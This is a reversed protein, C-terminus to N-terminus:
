STGKQRSGLDEQFLFYEPKESGRGIRHSAVLHELLYWAETPNNIGCEACLTEIKKPTHTLAALLKRQLVLVAAAARKGAEVGPQHYANISVMWAYYGVAREYLALLAGVFYPTIAPLTLTLSWRGQEALAQRTGLLFGLLYDGSTTQEEVFFPSREPIDEVVHVFTAFFSAPGERLQQVYAHQDTSGKNGYVVLGERVINGLLDKEKGLSEMILQQLYRTLGELRDKYPLVVMERYGHEAAHRWALALLMAPNESGSVFQRTLQDMDAAGQLLTEWSLGLLALPVLGVASWLSTRGGVWSWLPFTALWGEQQAQQFLRGGEGTIAVAHRAFWLGHQEFWARTELYGNRTEPTEGSKSIVLVLTARLGHPTDRLSRLTRHIGEPDTNDMFFLRVRDKATGLAQYLFQPGLASGGIGIVLVNRVPLGHPAWAGTHAAHAFAAIDKWLQRIATEIGPEPALFPARLWYHGVSRNEDTNVRAGQELARMFEHAQQLAAWSQHLFGPFGNMYQLDIAIEHPCASASSPSLPFVFLPDLPFPQISM